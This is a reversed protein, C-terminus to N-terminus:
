DLLKRYEAILETAIRKGDFREAIKSAGAQGEAYYAADTRLRQIVLRFSDEEALISNDAFTDNYDPIKRLLIPLGAAAAEVIVLGFTEQHSPLFFLNSAQYYTAVSELPIVGPLMVNAPASKILDNMKDADAALKKFPMGGVWIFRVDPMHKAVSLFSDFGKRPQIQGCCMVVFEDQGVGLLERAAARREPSNDYRSTDVPNYVLAVPAKLNLQQKLQDAM